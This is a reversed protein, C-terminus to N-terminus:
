QHLDRYVAKLYKQTKTVVRGVKTIGQKAHAKMSKIDKAVGEQAKTVHKSQAANKAAETITKQADTIDESLGSVKKEIDKRAKAGDKVADQIDEAAETLPKLADELGVGGKGKSAEEATEKVKKIDKLVQGIKSKAADKIVEEL